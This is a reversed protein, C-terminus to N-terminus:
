LSRNLFIFICSQEIVVKINIFKMLSCKASLFTLTLISEDNVNEHLSVLIMANIHIKVM